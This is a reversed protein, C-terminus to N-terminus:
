LYYSKVRIDTDSLAKLIVDKVRDWQLGGIGAGIFPVAVENLGLEKMEIALDVFSSYILQYKANAGPFKQTALNAVYEYGSHAVPYVYCTGCEILGARCDAVYEDRIRPHRDAVLGAVGAAFAGVTNCGHAIIRCDTDFLDGNIEEIM